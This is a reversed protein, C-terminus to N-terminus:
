ECCTNMNIKQANEYWHVLGIIIEILHKENKYIRMINEGTEVYLLIKRMRNPCKKLNENFAWLFPM